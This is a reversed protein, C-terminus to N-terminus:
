VNKHPLPTKNTVLCHCNRNDEGFLEVLHIISAVADREEGSVLLQQVVLALLRSESIVGIFNTTM